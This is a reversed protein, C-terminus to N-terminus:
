RGRVPLKKTWVKKAIKCTERWLMIKNWYTALFLVIISVPVAVAFFIYYVLASTSTIDSNMSLFSTVFSLPVFVFALYTIRGINRSETIAKKGEEVSLIAVAMQMIKDARLQLAQLQVFLSVFDRRLSAQWVSSLHTTHARLLTEGSNVAAFFSPVALQEWLEYRGELGIIADRVWGTYYPLRRQWKHLNNLATDLDKVQRSRESDLQWEIQFLGTFTYQLTVLIEAFVMPYVHSTIHGPDVVLRARDESSLTSICSLLSDFIPMEPHRVVSPEFTSMKPPAELRGYGNWLLKGERICPDVLIVGTWNNGQKCSWISVKRRVLGVEHPSDEWWANQGSKVQGQFDIRRLVNWKGAQEKAAQSVTSNEFFRPQMYRITVFSRKHAQSELEPMEVWDDKINFWTHDELHARFFSPDIDLAAGLQEIVTRSLDEVIFVRNLKNLSELRHQALLSALDVGNECTKQTINDPDSFDLLAVKVKNQRELIEQALLGNARKPVTGARMFDALYALRPWQKSLNEIHRLYPEDKEVDRTSEERHYITGVFFPDGPHPNTTLPIVRHGKKNPDSAISSTNTSSSFSVSGGGFLKSGHVQSDSSM